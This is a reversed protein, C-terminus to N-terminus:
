DRASITAARAIATLLEEKKVPKVLHDDMGSERSREMDAEHGLATVAIIPHPSLDHEKELARIQSAAEHGNLLPMEIDMLIVDPRRNESLLKEFLDVAEQGDEAMALEFAPAALMKELVMMNVQSDEAILVRTSQHGDLRHDTLEPQTNLRLEEKETETDNGSVLEVSDANAIQASVPPEVSEVEHESELRPSGAEKVRRRLVAALVVTFLLLALIIEGEGSYMLSASSQYWTYSITTTAGANVVAFFAVLRAGITVGGLFLILRPDFRLAQLTILLFIFYYTPAKLAAASMGGYLSAFSVIVSTFLVVDLSALAWVTRRSSPVYTRQALASLIFLLTLVSSKSVLPLTSGTLYVGLYVALAMVGMALHVTAIARTVVAAYRHKNAPNTM